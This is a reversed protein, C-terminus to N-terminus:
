NKSCLIINAYRVNLTIASSTSGSVSGTFSHNHSGGGGTDSTVNPVNDVNTTDYVYTFGSSGQVGCKAAVTHNHGPIQSTSLTTSGVSGTVSGGSITPTQNTFVTSFATTGGTTGGSSSVLRLAYDNLSTVQTWGTPASAQYYLGITGSELVVGSQIGAQSVQGSSNLYNAFQSLNFAQTTMNFQELEQL